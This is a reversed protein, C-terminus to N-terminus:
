GDDQLIEADVIKGAELFAKTADAPGRQTQIVQRSGAAKLAELHLAGINITVGGQGKLGGRVESMWRYWGSKDSRWRAAATTAPEETGLAELAKEALADASDEKAAAWRDPDRKLLQRVAHSSVRGTDIGLEACIEPMSMGAGAMAYVADLGGAKEIARDRAITVATASKGAKRAM